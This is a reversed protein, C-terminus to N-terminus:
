DEDRYEVPTEGAEGEYPLGHREDLWRGLDAM